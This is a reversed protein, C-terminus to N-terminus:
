LRVDRRDRKIIRPRRSPHSISGVTDTGQAWSIVGLPASVEILQTRTADHGGSLYRGDNEIAKRRGRRRPQIRELPTDRILVRTM